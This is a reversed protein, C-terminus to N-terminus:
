FILQLVWLGETQLHWGIGRKKIDLLFPLSAGFVGRGTFDVKKAKISSSKDAM